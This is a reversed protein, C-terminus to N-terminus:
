ASRLLLSSSGCEGCVLGVHPDRVQRCHARDYDHAGTCLDDVVGGPRLQQVAEVVHNLGQMYTESLLGGHTNVPLTGDLGAGGSRFLETAAGDPALGFGEVHLPVMGTFPDYLEAFDVDQPKLGARDYLIPATRKAEIEWAPDPQPPYVGGIMASILVPAHRLTRAREASSVVVATAGDSQLCCDFLRFPYVVWPSAQHDAVSMPARMQAKTNLAAHARQTVAIHALDETTAGYRAMYATYYPGFVAAAHSSGFPVTWQGPGEPLRTAGSRRASRGNLARFVLVNKCMGAHIAMAAAAILSCASGGGHADLIQFNCGTMGLAYYLERPNITDTTNYQFNLVGDIDEVDLGADAIANLSAEAALNLVSTGSAKSFKTWGIGSIATQDKISPPPM